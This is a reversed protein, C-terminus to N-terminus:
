NAGHGSECYRDAPHLDFVVGGAPVGAAALPLHDVGCVVGAAPLVCVSLVPLLERAAMSAGMSIRPQQVMYGLLHLALALGVLLLGPWWTRLPLALLEKRKWWFLALVVFPILKGHSDDSGATDASSGYALHMWYLLSPTSIYGLTSNGLFQFLALWAILLVFFLGKNPLGQWCELFQIRFDELIGNEPQTAM